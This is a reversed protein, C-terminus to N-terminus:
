GPLRVPMLLYMFGLADNGHILAPKLGDRVEIVAENDNV